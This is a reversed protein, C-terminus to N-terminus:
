CIHNYRLSLLFEYKQIDSRRASSSDATDELRQLLDDDDVRLTPDNLLIPNREISLPSILKFTALTAAIAANYGAIYGSVYEDTRNEAYVESSYSDRSCIILILIYSAFVLIWM